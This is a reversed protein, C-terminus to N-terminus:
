PFPRPEPQATRPSLCGTHSGAAPLGPSTGLCRSGDAPAWHEGKWPRHYRHPPLGARRSDGSLGRTTDRAGSVPSKPLGKGPPCPPEKGSCGWQPQPCGPQPSGCADPPTQLDQATRFLGLEWSHVQAIIVPGWWLPAAARKRPHM